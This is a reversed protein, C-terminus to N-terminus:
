EASDKDSLAPKPELPLEIVFETGEGPTSHCYLRGGHKETIIQYSISLGMGTGKGVPKTTFFPNFIRSRVAEPMGSGSDAIHISVWEEEPEEHEICETWIRIQRKEIPSSELADIANVLLNMVVQNLQGAYCKVLPLSGYDRKVEILKGRDPTKLRHQLIVLTSEIGEHIDAEKFEAEDLRSFNRLSRVIRKIRDSGNKTSVILKQIDEILFPLDIEEIEAQLQEPPEPYYNQYTEVLQLLDKTYEDLHRLNGHIFNVPNNIEHAIGAVMEGLASMKENQVLKSQAQQLDVIAKELQDTKIQSQKHLEAERELTRKLTDEAARRDTIDCATGLCAFIEGQENRLPSTQTEVIRITGGATTVSHQQSSTKGAFAAIEDQRFGSSGESDGFVLAESFGLEIDDCGIIEDVRKGIAIAYSQNALVYRFDKDKAFIWNPSRDIVERWLIHPSVASQTATIEGEDGADPINVTSVM